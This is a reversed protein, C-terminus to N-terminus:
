KIRTGHKYWQKTGCPYIIAPQDNDRHINGYQYWVQTGDSWDNAPQDNDRHLKGHKYWSKSGDRWIIAPQDNFSHLRRNYNFINQLCNCSKIIFATTAKIIYSKQLIIANRKSTQALQEYEDPGAYIGIEVILDVPLRDLM